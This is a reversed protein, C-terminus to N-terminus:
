PKNTREIAYIIQINTILTFELGCEHCVQESEGSYEGEYPDWKIDYGQNCKPCIIDCPPNSYQLEPM